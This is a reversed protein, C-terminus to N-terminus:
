VVRLTPIPVIFKGGERRYAEQQRLVEEEFNWTLLLVYDPREELLAEPERIPIHTGPTYRGQKVPSLDVVFEIVTADIGFYNLLTSGKASAGYAAVKKGADRLERLLTVLEVKLVEVREAFTLYFDSRDINEKAEQELLQGVNESPKAACDDIGSFIRLSGGHINLREVDHIVLGHREFLRTLATVSFYCLHEHYVTDFETGDVMDRVYPVEVIIVGSDKVFRRLGYVVGNLDPVHALVNNAHIVDARGYDEILKDVLQSGFFDCVTPIDKELAVAAINTAPEVGIIPIRAQKYAQLLYGDNSAIEAALSNGDLQRERIVRQVLKSAHVVMTDSVSSFYLYEGFLDVPPVTKTIQVLSCVRCFVLDLPYCPEPASLQSETLLANALPTDGLSLV